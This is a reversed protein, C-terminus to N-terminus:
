LWAALDVHGVILQSQGEHVHGLRRARWDRVVVTKEPAVEECALAWGNIVHEQLDRAENGLKWDSQERQVRFGCGAFYAEARDTADPGLALGFGKATRQHRNVLARIENDEPEQPSCQIRGDYTLAFLAAAEAQRCHAALSRLWRDSVLDLLAAATVLTRGKFLEPDDHRSLDLLRTTIDCVLHKSHLAVRHGNESVRYGRSMAWATMFQRVRDLLAPDHDVLLWRQPCPLREVLYRANSGTGAGLDLVSQEGDGELVGAIAATLTSSRALVDAPERLALWDASFTM